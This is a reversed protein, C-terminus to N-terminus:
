IGAEDLIDGLKDGVSPSLCVGSIGGRERLARDRPWRSVSACRTPAKQVRGTISDRVKMQSEHRNMYRIMGVSKLLLVTPIIFDAPQRGEEYFSKLTELSFVPLHRLVGGGGGDKRDV